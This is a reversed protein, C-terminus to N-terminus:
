GRVQLTRHEKLLCKNMVVKLGAARAQDAAANHALGEQMWVVKARRAIAEAVIGPIAEPQRFIDVVDVPEPVTSLSPYAQEGLVATLKPNVPIIRYGQAQLYAAVQHSSREPNDSLGVVAITHATALIERIEDTTANTLPMECASSMLILM